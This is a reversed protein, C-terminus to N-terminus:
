KSLELGMRVVEEALLKFDERKSRHNTIAVRIAFKGDLVTSSPVAIGKEQLQLLIEQNLANLEADSKGSQVFRFCVLNLPAPAVLELNPAANVLSVLYQAQDVNQQIL